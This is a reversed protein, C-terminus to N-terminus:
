ESNYNNLSVRLLEIEPPKVKRQLVMEWDVNKFFPHHKIENADRRGCGLRV